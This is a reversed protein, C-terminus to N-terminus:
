EGRNAREQARRLMERTVNLDHKARTLRVDTTYSAKLQQAKQQAEEYLSTAEEVTATEMMDRVVVKDKVQEPTTNTRQVIKDFASRYPKPEAAAPTPTEEASEVVAEPAPQVPAVPETAPEATVAPGVEATTEQAPASEATTTVAEQSTEEEVNPKPGHTAIFGDQDTLADFVNSATSYLDKDGSVNKMAKTFDNIRGAVNKNLSSVHKTLTRRGNSTLGSTKESDIEYRVHGTDLLKLRVFEHVPKRAGRRRSTQTGRDSQVQVTEKMIDIKDNQINGLVQHEFAEQLYETADERTVKGTAMVKEVDDSALFSLQEDWEKRSYGDGAISLGKLDANLTKVLQTEVKELHPTDGEGNLWDKVSNSFGSVFPKFAGEGRFILPNVDNDDGGKEGEESEDDFLGIKLAYALADSMDIVDVLQSKALVSADIKSAIDVVALKEAMGPTAYIEKQVRAKENAVYTDYYDKSFAGNAVQEAFEIKNDIFAKMTKDYNESGVDAASFSEAVDQYAKNKLVSLQQLLDAGEFRKVADDIDKTLAESTNGVFRPFKTKAVRKKQKEDVEELSKIYAMEDKDRKRELGKQLADHFEEDNKYFSRDIGLSRGTDLLKSYQKDEFSETFTNGSSRGSIQSGYRRAHSALHPFDQIVSSVENKLMTKAQDAGIRSGKKQTRLADARKVVADLRGEIEKEQTDIVIDGGAEVAKGVAEFAQGVSTDVVGKRTYQTGELRDTQSLHTGKEGFDVKNAM